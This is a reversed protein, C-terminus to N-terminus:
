FICCRKERKNESVHSAVDHVIPTYGSIPSAFPGNADANSLSATAARGRPGACKWRSAFCVLSQIIVNEQSGNAGAVVKQRRRSTMAGSRSVDQAVALHYPSLPTVTRHLLANAEGINCVIGLDPTPGKSATSRMTKSTTALKTSLQSLRALDGHM